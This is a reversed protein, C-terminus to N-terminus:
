FRNNNMQGTREDRRAVTNLTEKLARTPNIYSGIQPKFPVNM